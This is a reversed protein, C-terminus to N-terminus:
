PRSLAFRLPVRAADRLGDRMATADPFRAPLRLATTEVELTSVDLPWPTLTAAFPATRALRVGACDFAPQGWCLALAISDVVALARSLPAVEAESVGLRRMWAAGDERERAAYGEMAARSEPSAGTRSSIGYIHTGHRLILLAEWLGWSGLATAVGAEWMPVHRHGPMANFARPLGTEPDFEPAAEWPLWACDHQTAANVVPAFPEPRPSMHRMLEGAVVAHAPQPTALVQGDPQPWLIM